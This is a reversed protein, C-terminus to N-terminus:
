AALFILRSGSPCERSIKQDANMRAFGQRSLFNGVTDFFCHANILNLM